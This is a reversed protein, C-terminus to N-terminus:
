QNSRSKQAVAAARWKYVAALSVIRRLRDDLTQATMLAETENKAAFKTFVDTEFGTWGQGTDVASRNAAAVMENLVDLALTDDIPLILKVLKSLSALVPDVEKSTPIAAAPIGGPPTALSPDSRKLQRVAQLVLRSACPHDRKAACKEVLSPYTRLISTARNLRGALIEAGSIDGKTALSLAEGVNADETLQEKVPGDKLKNILERAQAFDGRGIAANIVQEDPEDKEGEAKNKAQERARKKYEDELSTRPLPVTENPRRSQVELALFQETLEPAYQKLLGWVSLLWLRSMQMRAPEERSVTDIVYGVYARMVAPGPPPTDQNRPDFHPFILRSLMHTTRLDSQDDFSIPFSRLLTIYQLILNDAAARDRKALDNIVSLTSTQTPDAQLASLVHEGAAKLDGDILSQKALESQRFQEEFSGLKRAGSETLEEVLAKDRRAVELVRRRVNDRARNESPAFVPLSGAPRNRLKLQEEEPPLTLAYAERLLKKAWERDLVWAVDAVEAQALARALPKDNLNQSDSALFQLDSILSLRRSEMTDDGAGATNVVKTQGLGLSTLLLLLAFPVFRRM